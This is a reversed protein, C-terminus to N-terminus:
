TVSNSECNVEKGQLEKYYLMDNYQALTNLKGKTAFARFEAAPNVGYWKRVVLKMDYSEKVELARLLDTYVRESQILSCEVNPSFRHSLLWLADKSSKVELAKGAADYLARLKENPPIMQLSSINSKSTAEIRQFEEM